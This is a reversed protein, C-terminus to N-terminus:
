GTPAVGPDAGGSGAVVVDSADIAGSADGGDGPVGLVDSPGAGSQDGVPPESGGPPTSPPPEPTTPPVTTPAVTPPNDTVVVPPPTSSPRGAPPKATATPKPVPSPARVTATGAVTGIPTTSPTPAAPPSATVTVYVIRGDPGRSPVVILGPGPAQGSESATLGPVTPAVQENSRGGTAKAIGYTVGGLVALLSAATLAVAAWRRSRVPPHGVLVDKGADLDAHQDDIMVHALEHEIVRAVEAETLRRSVLVTREEPVWLGDAGDLDAFCITVGRDSAQRLLSPDVVSGGSSAPM